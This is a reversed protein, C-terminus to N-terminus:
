FNNNGLRENRQRLTAERQPLDLPITPGRRQFNQQIVENQPRATRLSESHNTPQDRNKPEITPPLATAGTDPYNWRPTETIPLDVENSPSVRPQYEFDNTPEDVPVSIPFTVEAKEAPKSTAVSDRSEEFTEQSQTSLLQESNTTSPAHESALPKLAYSDPLGASENNKRAATIVTKPTLKEKALEEQAPKERTPEESDTEVKQPQTNSLLPRQLDPTTKVVENTSSPVVIPIDPRDTPKTLDVSLTNSSQNQPPLIPNPKNAPNNVVLGTVFLLGIIMVAIVLKDSSAFMKPKRSPSTERQRRREARPISAPEQPLTPVIDPFATDLILPQKPEVVAVLDETDPAEIDPDKLDPPIHREPLNTSLDPLRFLIPTEKHQGSNVQICGGGHDRFKLTPEVRSTRNKHKLLANMEKGLTRKFPLNVLFLM